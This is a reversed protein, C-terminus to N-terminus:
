FFEENDVQKYFDQKKANLAEQDEMDEDNNNTQENEEEEDMGVDGSEDTGKRRGAGVRRGRKAPLQKTVKKPPM